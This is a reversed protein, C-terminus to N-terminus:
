NRGHMVFSKWNVFGSNNLDISAQDLHSLEQNHERCLCKVGLDDISLQMFNGPKPGCDFPWHENHTLM